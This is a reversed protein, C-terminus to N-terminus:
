PRFDPLSQKGWSPIIMCDDHPHFSKFGGGAASESHYVYGRSALMICFECTPGQPVRAFRPRSKDYQATVMTTLRASRTAVDHALMLWDATNSSDFQSVARGWMDDVGIHAKNRGSQVQKWTLGNFDTDSYGGLYDYLARDSGQIHTDYDPLEIDSATSWAERMKAYYDAAEESMEQAYDAVLSRYSDIFQGSLFTSGTDSEFNFLNELRKQYARVIESNVPQHHAYTSNIDEQLLRATGDKPKLLKPSPIPKSM